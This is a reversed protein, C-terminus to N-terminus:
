LLRCDFVSISFIPFFYTIISQKRVKFTYCMNVLRWINYKYGPIFNELDCVRLSQLDIYNFPLVKHFLVHQSFHTLSYSCQYYYIIVSLLQSYFNNQRCFICIKDIYKAFFICIYQEFIRYIIQCDFDFFLLQRKARYIIIKNNFELSEM